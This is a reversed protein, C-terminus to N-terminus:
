PSGQDPNQPTQAPKPPYEFGYEPRPQYMSRIWDMAQQYKRERTNRFIPRYGSGPYGRPIEPHPVLSNSPTMAMQLLPSREPDRYNILPLGNSLKTREIIYLNTFATEDTNPRENILQFSGADVGGHCRTSACANILWGRGHHVQDKFRELSDPNELLRVKPYLDRAKLSFLLKLKEIEPLDLVANREDKNPSFADPNRRMLELMIEDDIKLRPPNRLDIEFVRMMNLQEDSLTPLENRKIQYEITKDPRATQGQEDPQKEVQTKDPQTKNRESLKDYEALWTHLLKAHPNNPDILLISNLEKLALTYAKRARLWEVLSLRADIDDDALTARLAKYRESVPKLVVVNAVNKRQFTTEIGEIGIVVTRSDQRILEGTITRGSNLTIVCERIGESEPQQEPEGPTQLSVLTLSSVPNQHPPLGTFVQLSGVLLTLGLTSLGIVGPRTSGNPNPQSSTPM